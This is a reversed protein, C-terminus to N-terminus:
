SDLPRGGFHKRLRAHRHRFVAAFMARQGPMPLRPEFLVRDTLVTGEPHPTLTREHEWVRQSAMSSRELFGRGPEFRVFTLDDFEVPVVGLLLLWSRFMRQGVPINAPEFRDLGRPGTMRFWPGMEANVGSLTSVREWIREPPAHLVSSFTFTHSLPM